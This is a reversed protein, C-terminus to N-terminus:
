RTAWLADLLDRTAQTQDNRNLHKALLAINLNPLAGSSGSRTYVGGVLRYIDLRPGVRLWVEKIGVKQYVDLVANVKTRSSIDFVFDPQKAKAGIAFAEEPEISTLASKSRLTVSGLAELELDLAMAYAGLMRTLLRTVRKHAESATTLEVNGNLYALRPNTRTGRIRNITQFDDWSADRMIVAQDSGAAPRLGSTKIADAPPPGPRKLKALEEKQRRIEESQQELERDAEELASSLREVTQHSYALEEELAARRPQGTQESPPAATPVEPKRTLAMTAVVLLVGAVMAFTGWPTSSEEDPAYRQLAEFIEDFLDPPLHPLALRVTWADSNRGNRVSMLACAMSEVKEHLDTDIFSILVKQRRSLGRSLPRGAHGHVRIEFGQHSVLTMIGLMREAIGHRGTEDLLRLTVPILTRTTRVRRKKTPTHATNGWAESASYGM